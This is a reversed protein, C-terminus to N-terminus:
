QGAKPPFRRLAVPVSFLISSVGVAYVPVLPAQLQFSEPTMAWLLFFVGPPGLLYAVLFRRRLAKPIQARRRLYLNGALWGSFAAITYVARPVLVLTGALPAGVAQLLVALWCAFFFALLIPELRNM